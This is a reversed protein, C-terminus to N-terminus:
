REQRLFLRAPGAPAVYRFGTVAGAADRVFVLEALAELQFFTEGGAHLLAREGIPAGTSHLQGDRVALRVPGTTAGEMAYDGALQALADPLIPAVDRVLPQQTPWGYEVAVARILEAALPSGGDGNTMVAIGSGDAFALFMARFGQNAGGHSFSVWGDGTATSFGLGYDGAQRTLMNRTMAPSLIGGEEGNYSNQVHIALRALDSPTTWLGAAFMEPYTHWNGAVPAGRTTHGVAASTARRAPLPQEYGSHVMGAPQLVLERLLGPFDRGTVEEMLLQAVSSGGGSYRWLSGPITDPRVAGSNAPPAGDLLQVLSPVAEGAAYGRFGHVTLGASHSLLRRLTVKDTRTHGNDEVRWSRLRANVDGDLDLLGQEVLRLAGMAAVPKSISAAQFLTATDVPLSGGAQVVGYGRAWHIRGDRIVALSLGPVGYHQMRALINMGPSGRVTVPTRLGDEIRRIREELHEAGRAVAPPPAGAPPQQATLTAHFPAHPLIASAALLVLFPVAAPFRM